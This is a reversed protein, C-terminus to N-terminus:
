ICANVEYAIKLFNLYEFIPEPCVPVCSMGAEMEMVVPPFNIKTRLELGRGLWLM